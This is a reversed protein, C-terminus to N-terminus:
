FFPTYKGLKRPTKEHKVAFIVCVPLLLKKLTLEQQFGHKIKRLYEM